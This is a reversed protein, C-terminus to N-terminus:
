KKKPTMKALMAGTVEGLRATFVPGELFDQASEISTLEPQEFVFQVLGRALEEVKKAPIGSSSVKRGIAERLPKLREDPM